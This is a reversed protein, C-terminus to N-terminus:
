LPVRAVLLFATGIANRGTTSNHHLRIHCNVQQSARHEGAPNVTRAHVLLLPRLTDGGTRRITKGLAGDRNRPTVDGQVEGDGIVVRGDVSARDHAPKVEAWGIGVLLTTVNCPVPVYTRLEPHRYYGYTAHNSWGGETARTRPAWFVDFADDDNVALRAAKILSSQPTVSGYGAVQHLIGAGTSQRAVSALREAETDTGRLRVGRSTGLFEGAVLGLLRSAMDIATDEVTAQNSAEDLVMNQMLEAALNETM